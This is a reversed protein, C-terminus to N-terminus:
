WTPIVVLKPLVQSWLSARADTTVTAPLLGANVMQVLDDDLLNADSAKIVIQPKGSRQLNENLRQLEQYSVSLPNAYIEKGGLEEVSAVNGFTPGSVVIQKVDKQLPVTFAVRQEREPTVVLAYAILDGTGQTLAAEVQDPRVPVFTVKVTFNGTKYKKNLYSEFERLVEYNVGMPQGNSTYFFGIPNILVLARLYRRKLMADLDDTHHGYPAPLIM